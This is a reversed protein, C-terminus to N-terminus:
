YVLLFVSLIVVTWLVIEKFWFELKDRQWIQKGQDKEFYGAILIAVPALTYFLEAGTKEPVALAILFAVISIYFLIAQKPRDQLPIAKLNFFRTGTAWIYFVLIITTPVLIKLTGYVSFDFDIPKRWHFFWQLSNDVTLWYAVAIIMIVSFGVIPMLMQKYDTNPKLAIAIWLPIFFLLSWFYALSALTIWLSADLIKRASNTDKHLSIIRRFALLLFFNAAIIDSQVFIMPLMLLFCCYFYIGYANSNTLNNKTIIFNLLFLSGVCLLAYLLHFFFYSFTIPQNAKLLVSLVYGILIFSGLILFNVPRSKEFFSTLM